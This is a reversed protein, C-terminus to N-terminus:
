SRLNATEAANAADGANAKKKKKNMSIFVAAIIIGIVALTGFLIGLAMGITTPGDHELPVIECKNGSTCSCIRVPITVSSELFPRGNDRIIVPVYIDQKPFDFRQMTLRATTANVYQISWDRAISENGGLRFKLSMGWPPRDDDTGSFEISEPKTLPHCFFFDENYSKALRPYNDNVDDLYLHFPVSSSMQQNKTETAIVEVVYHDVLERNLQANTFIDGGYESIRLWNFRDGRLSYRIVDGEPDTADIKLLFTGVTVNEFFQAQYIPSEFVPKEDVNTVYVRLYTSSSDNYQLGTVLPEPNKAEVKLLHEQYREYDLPAAIRVYGRNNDPNTEVIFMKDPDGERIEYNIASSGTHPADDDTAQIEMVLTGVPTDEPLTVNGYFFTEFIPIHDNIDIVNIVVWCMTSLSPTGEDSVNVNLRYQKETQINLGSNILQIGGDYANIRFLNGSTHPWQEMIKYNLVSNPSDHQDIDTAKLEGIFSGIAENEQVEFVTQAGPCVPPNDNIDEVNVEIQLPKAVAIGNYNKALAFFIYQAREERDLPETVNINGDQDIVFPFRPLKDRQHLEYIVSQDNWTVKTITYPHLGTSNEQITVPKPAKWLNEQINIYVKANDFFPRESLDAVELVLEYQKDGFKLNISGEITTSIEGTVNNIQFYMVGTPDPIQQKIKYVLQANPTTPDDKDTAYVQIFPRGARSQERVDGYYKSQNFVPANNNIDDVIITITYPGEILSGRSDTTKVKLTYIQKKEWNLAVGTVLWGDRDISFTNDTEGELLFNESSPDNKVFQYIKTAVGEPVHLTKSALPGTNEAVIKQICFFLILFGKLKAMKLRRM